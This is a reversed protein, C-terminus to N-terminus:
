APEKTALIAHAERIVNMLQNKTHGQVDAYRVRLGAKRCLRVAQYRLQDMQRDNKRLDKIERQISNRRRAYQETEARQAAASREASENLQTMLADLDIDSTLHM